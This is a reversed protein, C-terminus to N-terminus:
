SNEKEEESSTSIDRRLGSSEGPAEEEVSKAMVKSIDPAKKPDIQFSIVFRYYTVPQYVPKESEKKEGVAARGAAGLIARGGSSRRTMSRGGPGTQRNGKEDEYVIVTKGTRQVVNEIYPDARLPGIIVKQVYDPFTPERRTTEGQITIELVQRVQETPRSGRGGGPRAAGRTGATGEQGAYKYAPVMHTIWIWENDPEEPILGALKHIIYFWVAGRNAGTGTLKNVRSMATAATRKAENYKVEWGSLKKILPDIKGKPNRRELEASRRRSNALNVILLLALAAVAAVAYGKKKEIVRAKLVERPLLNTKIIGEDAGQVVLGLAVGFTLSHEKFLGINEADEFDFTKPGEFKEVEINLSASLYKAVGKLHFTSGFAVLRDFTVDPHTAKYFGLSRQIEDVLGRLAPRMSEYLKRIDKSRDAGKKLTEAKERPLKYDRELVRTFDSGAIPLNRSWIAEQSAIILSTNDTGIDLIIKAGEAPPNDVMVFNYLAVPSLQLVDAPMNVDMLNALYSHILERRLAFIGVEVQEGPIFGRDIPQYDWIVEDIPFPIQQHAEYKVIEPIKKRDVPPLKIFRILASHGAMSCIITSKKVHNRELFKALAARIVEDPNAGESIAAGYEILDFKLIRIGGPEKAAQVAKLSHQGIDLGWITKAAM